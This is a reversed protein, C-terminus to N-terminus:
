EEDEPHHGSFALFFMSGGVVVLTIFLSAMFVDFFFDGWTNM